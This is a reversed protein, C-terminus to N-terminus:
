IPLDNDEMERNKSYESGTKIYPIKERHKLYVLKITNSYKKEDLLLRILVGGIM